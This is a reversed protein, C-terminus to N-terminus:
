IDEKVKTYFMESDCQSVCYPTNKIYTLMKKTEKKTM